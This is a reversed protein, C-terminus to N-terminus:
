NGSEPLYVRIFDIQPMNPYRVQPDLWREDGTMVYLADFGDGSSGAGPKAIPIVEMGDIIRRGNEDYATYNWGKVEVVNGNEDTYKGNRTWLYVPNFRITGRASNFSGLRATFEETEPINPGDIVYSDENFLGVESRVESLRM